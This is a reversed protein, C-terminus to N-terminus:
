NPDLQTDGSNNSTRLTLLGACLLLLVGMCAGLLFFSARGGPFGTISLSITQGASVNASRIGSYNGGALMPPIGEEFGSASFHLLESQPTAFYMNAISDVPVFTLVNHTDKKVPVKFQIGQLTIGSPYKRHIRLTGDKLITVNENTLGEGAQFDATEHPLRISSSFEVEESGPNEVAFYYIGYIDKADTQMLVIHSATQHISASSPGSGLGPFAFVHSCYLTLLVLGVRLM